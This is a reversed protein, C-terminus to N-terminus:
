AAVSEGRLGPTGVDALIVPGPLHAHLKLLVDIPHPEPGHRCAQQSFFLAPHDLDLPCTM